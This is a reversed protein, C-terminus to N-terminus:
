DRDVYSNTVIAEVGVWYLDFGGLGGPRNSSFLLLDHKFDWLPVLLPRYEDSETNIKDGFNIPASWGTDDKEAYWLDFGGFGGARNSTFVIINDTIYPCKDDAESSLLDSRTLPVEALSDSLVDIINKDTTIQGFYIDFDGNQDTCYYIRNLELDLCPYAENYDSNLFTAPEPPIFVVSSDDEPNHNLTYRIDLNGSEDNAYMVFYKGYYKDTYIDSCLFSYDIVYPGLENYSTNITPLVMKLILFKDGPTYHHIERGSTITGDDRDFWIDFIEYIIDYQAGFSNRNSSFLLPFTTGYTPSSPNYDDYETNFDELNVPSTPLFGQNYEYGHPCGTILFVVSLILISKKIFNKNM